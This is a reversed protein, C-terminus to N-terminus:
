ISQALSLGLGHGGDSRARDAQYFRKFIHPLDDASIGRGFDQMAVAIKGNRRRVSAIVEAGDPSYKIANDLLVLFLRHLAPRNGAIWAPETGLSVDVLIRRSEALGRVENCVDQLVERADLTVLPMEAVGTDRRALVLLDEVLKTMRQAEAAI